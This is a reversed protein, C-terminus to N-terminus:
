WSWIRGVSKSRDLHLRYRVQEIKGLELFVEIFPLYVVLAVREVLAFGNRFSGKAFTVRQSLLRM